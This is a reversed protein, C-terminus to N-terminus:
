LFTRVTDAVRCGYLKCFRKVGASNAQSPVPSAFVAPELFLNLEVWGFLFSTGERSALFWSAIFFSVVTISRM